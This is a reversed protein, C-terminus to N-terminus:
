YVDQLYRASRELGAVKAEADHTSLALVGEYARVLAARVDKAM